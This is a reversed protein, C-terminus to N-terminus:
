QKNWTNYIINQLLLYFVLQLFCTLVWFPKKQRGSYVKKEKFTIVMKYNLINCNHNFFSQLLKWVSYESNDQFIYMQLYIQFITFKYFAELFYTLIQFISRSFVFYNLTLAVSNFSFIIVICFINDFQQYDTPFLSRSINWCQFSISFLEPIHDKYLCIIIIPEKNQNILRVRKKFYNKKICYKQVFYQGNM